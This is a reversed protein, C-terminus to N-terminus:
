RSNKIKLLQRYEGETIPVVEDYNLCTKSFPLEVFLFFPYKKIVRGAVVAREQDKKKKTEVRKQVYLGERINSDKSKPSFEGARCEQNKM